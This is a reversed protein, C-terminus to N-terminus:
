AAPQDDVSEETKSGLTDVGPDVSAVVEGADDTAHAEVTASADTTETAQELEPAGAAPPVQAPKTQQERAGGDDKGKRSPKSIGALQAEVEAIKERKKQMKPSAQAILKELNARIQDDKKGGGLNGLSAHFDALNEEDEKLEERLRALFEQTQALRGAHAREIQGRRRDRDEDKRNFFNRRAKIFSEWLSESHERAVPGVKKWEEMLETFEDTAARWDTSYQLSEAQKVLAAKQAYNDDLGVRITAFHQRKANFFTDKAKSLRTWLEDAKEVPVRGISKWKDMLANYANSTKGWDTSEALQEAEEVLKMKAEYNGEQETQISEFHQKKRDYFVNKAAIFRQWLAENKDNFTRGTAKWSDMLTKFGETAEKWSDSAALHEAKDVIETKLDLNSSLEAQEADHRERKRDFFSNRATELRNWLGDAREKDVHGLGKWQEGIERLEQTAEKTPEGASIGEAKEVLALRAEYAKDMGDQLVNDWLAVQQYLPTFDGIAVAHLLYERARLVKSAVKSKDDTAAWEAAVEQVRAEVDGFKERLARIVPQATEPQIVQLPREPAFPTAKLMLTGDPRLETFEKGEFSLDDWWSSSTAPAESTSLTESETAPIHPQEPDM